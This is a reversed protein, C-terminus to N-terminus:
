DDIRNAGAAYAAGGQIALDGGTAEARLFAPGPREHEGGVQRGKKVGKGCSIEMAM